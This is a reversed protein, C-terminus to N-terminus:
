ERGDPQPAARAPEISTGAGGVHELAHRASEGCARAGPINTSREGICESVRRHPDKVREGTVEAGPEVLGARGYIQNPGGARLPDGLDRTAFPADRDKVIRCQHVVAVENQAGARIGECRKLVVAEFVVQM